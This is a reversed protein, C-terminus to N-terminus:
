GAINLPSLALTTLDLGVSQSNHACTTNSSSLSFWLSARYVKRLGLESWKFCAGVEGLFFLNESEVNNLLYTQM